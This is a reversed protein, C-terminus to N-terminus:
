NILEEKITKALFGGSFDILIDRWQFSRTPVFSQHIEDFLAYIFIGLLPLFFNKKSKGFNLARFFLFYGVGYLFFHAVTRLIEDYFNSEVVRLNPISSLYFIVGAWVLVPVWLFLFIKIKVM